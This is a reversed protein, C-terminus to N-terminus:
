EFSYKLSPKLGFSHEKSYLIFFYEHFLLLKACAAAGWYFTFHCVSGHVFNQRSFFKQKNKTKSTAHGRWEFQINIPMNNLLVKKSTKQYHLNWFEISAKLPQCLFSASSNVAAFYYHIVFSNHYFHVFIEFFTSFIGNPASQGFDKEYYHANWNDNLKLNM